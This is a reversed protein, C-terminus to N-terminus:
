LVKRGFAEFYFAARSTAPGPEIRSLERCQRAAWGDLGEEPHRLVQGAAAPSSTM